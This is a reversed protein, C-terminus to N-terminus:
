TAAILSAVDNVILECDPPDTTPKVLATPLILTLVHPVLRVNDVAVTDSVPM